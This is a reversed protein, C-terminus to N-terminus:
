GPSVAGMNAVGRLKKLGAEKSEDMVVIGNDVVIVRDVIDLVRMRHTAIVVTKDASWRLFHRIFQRETSEDMAATPEDFLIVSPQRILLRALLIAQKQGGSLGLGGELVPHELGKPLKRIFDDAGVMSLADLVENESAQPAGLLINDRLTGHFLRANQTLLAVDRRIDAPDIHHLAMNDLYIEGSSPELLGSLAQLLTSKGAGNKGLLAIKEGPRIQLDRVTLAVPSSEDGYRFVASRLHYHGAIKPCHIRNEREPHDVPMQMIANLSRIALKAQQLRSLLMSIQSMPAMMRSGLVSAAVLAGTTMDGAIVLPAGVLVTAAYAGSQVTHSWAGLSNTLTRLKLQAESTVANLHNWQQQFREEAQLTKIDEIGQVAEVLVANRLSSERMAENAHARLRRQALLGPIVLAVIAVIPVLVMPGGIYWYILLFLLFFPLDAMAAVTTSTLLERVQELDRLQAIFTGTSSPRKRNRVRLAHGFVVDSMRLDARKGLLDIINVRLRRLIFDFALALLVGSFLVYLTHYSQAPVVRDYVQMSFVIGALALTNAILSALMVHGYPRLDRLIIRRLWNEQFPRIYTDVRTDPISRAPRPITLLDADRLLESLPVPTELGEDGSFIVNAIGSEGVTTVVGVDGTSTRVIVPLHWNSLKADPKGFKVQLGTRRALRRVTEQPDDDPNWLAAQRVGQISVPLRYHQAVVRLAELWRETPFATKTAEAESRHAVEEAAEVREM